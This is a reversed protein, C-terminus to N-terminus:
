TGPHSAKWNAGEALIDAIHQEFQARIDADTPQSGAHTAVWQQRIQNYIPLFTAFLQAILQAM